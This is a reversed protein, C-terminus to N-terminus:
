RRARTPPHDLSRVLGNIMKGIEQADRILGELEHPTVVRVRHGIELQTELEASSAHSTWLHQVYHATSHRSFGEAVNSPISVASKRVQFGLVDQHTRPFRLSLEYCRVALAISKQWVFLDRFSKIDSMCRYLCSRQRGIEPRIRSAAPLFRSFRIRAGPVFNASFSGDSQHRM